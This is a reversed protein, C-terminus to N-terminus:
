LQVVVMAVQFQIPQLLVGATRSSRLLIWAGVYKNFLEQAQLAKAALTSNQAETLRSSEAPVLTSNEVSTLQRGGKDVVLPVYLVASTPGSWSDCQAFLAPLRDLTLATTITM